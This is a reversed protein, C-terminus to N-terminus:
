EPGSATGATRPHHLIAAVDYLRMRYTRDASYDPEFM